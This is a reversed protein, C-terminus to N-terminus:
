RQQGFNLKCTHTLLFLVQDSNRFRIAADLEMWCWIIFNVNRIQHTTGGCRLKRWADIAEVGIHSPHLETSIQSASVQSHM